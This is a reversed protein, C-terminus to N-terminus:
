RVPSSLSLERALTEFLVLVVESFPAAWTLPELSELDLLLVLAWAALKAVSRVPRWVLNAFAQLWDVSELKVPPFLSFQVM